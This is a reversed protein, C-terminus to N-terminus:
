GPRVVAPSAAQPVLLRPPEGDDVSSVWIGSSTANGFSSREVVGYLVHHEDLWEAQDDISRTEPLPRDALTALDLVHLRWADAAVRKKFVLRSGDPSLSPCEVGDRLVRMRRAALDGEVLYTRGGTGLTAYFRNGDGAFTVGWFNFDVARFPAGERTVTFEELDGLVSGTLLDLLTTRTSFDPGAAGAYSDGAVFVTMGAHRGDAAVRARSPLEGLPFGAGRAFAADFAFASPPAWIPTLNTALCLGRGGAFYLRDCRLPTVARPGDPETLPVVAVSGYGSGPALNRFLLVGGASLLAGADPAVGGGAAAAPRQVGVPAAPGRWAAGAVAVGAVLGSAICLAVFAWVRASARTREPV